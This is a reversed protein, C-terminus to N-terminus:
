YMESYIAMNPSSGRVWPSHIEYNLYLAKYVDYGHM